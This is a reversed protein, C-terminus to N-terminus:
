FWQRLSAELRDPHEHAPVKTPLPNELLTAADLLKAHNPPAQHALSPSSSVEQQAHHPPLTMAHKESLANLTTLLKPKHSNQAPVKIPPPRMQLMAADPLMANLEQEQHALSLLSSHDQQAHHPPLTMAHKESLATPTILKPKHSIQAHVMIPLLPLVQLLAADLLKANKEQKQHALSLLSSHDKPAHHPLVPMAHKESLATPTILLKPKQSIQAHVMIPLLPLVQLLAADLLMANLEQQQHALSLLSSHDQQAHHPPLTMAHKESLATPTILKLKQSIQAHVMIPLLPLVQLLAADLLKANLEQQQHALSLLSSHDKPAHHPPVPM